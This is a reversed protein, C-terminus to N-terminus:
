KLTREHTYAVSIAALIAEIGLGDRRFASGHFGIYLDMNDPCQELFHNSIYVVFGGKSRLKELLIDFKHSYMMEVVCVLTGPKVHVTYDEQTKESKLVCVDKGSLILRMQFNRLFSSGVATIFCIQDAKLFAKAAALVVDDSVDERIRKFTDEIYDLGRSMYQHDWELEGYSFLINDQVEKLDMGVSLKFDGYSDYGLKRSLRLITAPSVYCLDALEYTSLFPVQELNKLVQAAANKYFDDDELENYLLILENIAHM